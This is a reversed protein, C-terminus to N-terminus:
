SPMKVRHFFKSQEYASMLILSQNNMGSFCLYPWNFGFASIAQFTEREYDHDNHTLTYENFSITDFM